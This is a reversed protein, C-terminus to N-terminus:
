AVSGSQAGPEPEARRAAQEFANDLYRDRGALLAKASSAAYLPLFLPGLSAWQRVHVLEHRVIAPPIPERSLVCGGLTQAFPRLPVADLYRGLRPDAILRAQGAGPVAVVSGGRPVGCGALVIRGLLDGPAARWGVAIARRVSSWLGALLLAADLADGVIRTIM